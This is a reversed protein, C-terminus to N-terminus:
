LYGLEKMEIEFKEEISQSIEINLKEQWKNKPGLNFFSKTKGTNTDKAQEAFGDRNEIKKLNEFNNNEVAKLIKDEQIKINILKALYESIKTFEEYPNSVLNEYKILLYNKKFNKWSNYHTKWSAILTVMDRNKNKSTEDFKKGLCKNEDFLFNKAEIYNEKSFHYKISSIVNRPDRVIYIVGLSNEYNTFISSNIKCLAHHTKFFKVKKDLNIIQQSKIWHSSVKNLDDIEHNNVFNNFHSRLPFQPINSLSKLSLNDSENFLLSAIFSRLWTNGSKPYSALWIIM